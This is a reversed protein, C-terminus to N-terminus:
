PKRPFININLVTDKTDKYAEWSADRWELLPLPSTARIRFTATLTM